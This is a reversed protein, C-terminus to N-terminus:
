PLLRVSTIDVTFSSSKWFRAHLNSVPQNPDLLIASNGVKHFSTLPITVTQSGNLGNQAGFKTVNAARWDGNQVFVISAEDDGGGFTAGHLNFTIQAQTKGNLTNAALTKDKEAAGNNGILTWITGLIETGNSSPTPTPTPVTAASYSLKAVAGGGSEYYEMVITHNGATLQQTTTYTTPGQDIWKDIVTVGDIKLRVGDDGTMSFQYSGATFNITRTWRVSFNDIPLLPDPRGSGWDFNITADNRTLTPSGSLTKNSYYQGTYGSAPTPTPTPTATPTPTSGGSGGGWVEFEAMQAAPAGSNSSVSLKVYRANTSPFSVPVTGLNYNTAPVITTFTTNDTSGLIAVNENRGGWDVKMVVKNITTVAGLDVTLTAPFINNQGEWYSGITGDNAKTAEYGAKQTSAVIPKGQSLLSSAGIVKVSTIDVTFATSNWFRAHLNSVPQSPDLTISADNVKHFSTLPITVTQQGDLGNQAGFKTVNAARWDGNQLFVISAEDDGGGFAKGHLDFTVEATTMGNLSNAPLAKDNEAAGSNASLTWTTGLLETGGGPVPTPTPTPQSSTPTPTPIVVAVESSTTLAHVGANQGYTYNITNSGNNFTLLNGITNYTYAYNYGGTLSATLLRNLDDYGFAQTKSTVANAIATINGVNDYTYTLDQLSGTKIGHLRFDDSNYTYGTSLGNAFDKKTIKGLASYDINNLIGSVKDIEGQSNFTYSVVEGDPNTQTALRDLADYGFQTTWTNGDIVRQEAIKRLRNDYTYNITGATDVVSTLSGIKTNGDYTYTIDTDTPYDVKTLRDLEDYNKVTVITRNDTRKTLNGVSDYEYRWTGLDPDVQTVRRGLSDYSLSFNNGASDTIAILNDLGNYAYTTVQPLSAVIEEVRIIKDFANFIKNVVHSNEDTTSVKWHDYATTRTTGNPNTVVIARDLPDYATTTARVGSVPTAYAASLTTLYPVTQKIVKSSPGYFSDVVIQQSTNEAPARTQLTRGLGDAWTYTDLTGAVGSTQRKSVVVGEPAVGDNLYQYGTTPFNASDYPKIEKSLRGFSDYLYSTIFGNPDSSSLLNGTGLDYLYSTIQNKANTSNDPYTSTADSTGYHYQTIHSNADTVKILNGFTDYQSLTTPNSSGTSLWEVNKTVDGLTPSDDLGTHSDYYFWSESLKTTDDAARTYTHKLTNVLWFSPNTVYENYTYREDGTLSTDGLESLKIINGFTDYTYDTQIIKANAGVGDYTFKQQSQLLVTYISNSQSNTWSYDTRAYLNDNTDRTAELALRGKLADDQNFNYAKKTGNPLIVSVSEFGRFERQQVNYKGNGYFYNTVDSTSQPASVGNRVTMRNVLWLPFSLNSGNSYRTSPTYDFAIYGGQSTIIEYLTDPAFGQSIYGQWSGFAQNLVDTLGDGNLDLVKVLSFENSGNMTADFWPTITTSFHDGMNKLYEWHASTNSSDFGNGRVIDPLNDGNVDAIVVNHNTLNIADVNANDIWKRPPLLSSGTNLYVAYTMNPGGNSNAEVLDPYGDGNFDALKINPNNFSSVGHAWNTNDNNWTNQGQMNLYVAWDNNQGVHVIDALGDGNMDIITLSSDALGAAQDFNINDEWKTQGSFSLTGAQKDSTNTWVFWDYNPNPGGRYITQVVDCKGDGTVDTLRMNSAGLQVPISAMTVWNAAFATGSGPKVNWTFNGGGTTKVLDMYGDGNMDCLGVDSHNLEADINIGGTFDIGSGNGSSAPNYTFTTPPLSSGDSGKETISTLLSQGNVAQTFGLDYQRVLSGNAKVMISSIRSTENITCGQVSVPKQYPNTSYTFNIERLQDNNYKIQSLYAVGNSQSYSFYIHNNHTDTVQDVNWYGDYTQGGCLLESNSVFGLRYVTGDTTTVQWYMGTTNQGGTLFQQIKLFSEQKTHFLSDTPNYVLDYTSGQFHLRYKDDTILWPTYNVDRQIYDRELQWGLGNQMTTDHVGHNNYSLSVEPTLDNTGKPVNIPYNYTAAGTFLDTQFKDRPQQPPNKQPIAQMAASASSVSGLFLLLSFFLSKTIINKM